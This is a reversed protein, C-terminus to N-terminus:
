STTFSEEVKEGVADRGRMAAVLVLVGIGLLMPEGVLEFGFQAGLGTYLQQSEIDHTVLAWNVLVLTFIVYGLYTLLRSARPLAPSTENAWSGASVVDFAISFVVIFAGAVAFETSFPDELFDLHGILAILATLFLLADIRVPTLRRKALWVGACLVVGAFLVGQLYPRDTNWQGVSALVKNPSTLYTWLVVGSVSGLFMAAGRQGRSALYWALAIAGLAVVSRYDFTHDNYWGLMDVLREITHPTFGPISATIAGQSLM